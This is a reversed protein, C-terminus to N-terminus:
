ELEALLEKAERHPNGFRPPWTQSLVGDLVERADAALGAAILARGLGLYGDPEKTRVRIVQRWEGVAEDFRQQKERVEALLARGESENASYEALSTYAREAEAPRELKQLRDGLEKFLLFDHTKKRGLSLLRAVAREADGLKDYADILFRQTEPDTRGAPGGEVAVELHRAAKMFERKETYIQGLAKRATVNELGTEASEKDLHAAYADLDKAERLVQLLGAMASQRNRQHSGWSVIAGAAADVAEPTRGLGSFARALFGYYSSLTGDGVGRNRSRKTHLSIAENLYGTAPEFLKVEVCVQGLGAAHRESWTGTEHFLGDASTLAALLKESQSTHYYARLLAQHYATKQPWTEVLALLLPISEGFRKRKHLYDVLQWKGDQGLGSKREYAVLADIAEDHEELGRFLYRAIHQVGKESSRSEELVELAVARFDSAHEAWFHGQRRSYLYRNRRTQDTLDRRLEALVIALVRPELDGVAGKMKKVRRALRYAHQNWFNNGQRELWRPENEARTVLFALAERSGVIKGLAEEVTSVTSQGNRYNYMQLIRPLVQFAFGRLKDSAAAIKKSHAAELLVVLRQVLRQAHNEHSRRELDEIILLRAPEFLEVGRGLSTTADRQLARAYFDYLQIALWRRQQLNHPLALERTWLEEAAAFERYEMLYRTYTQLVGNASQPLLGEQAERHEDLAASLVEITEEGRGYSWLASARSAAIAFREESGRTAGDHLERLQRLQEERLPDVLNSVSELLQAMLAAEGDSWEGANARFATKLAELAAAMHPGAGDAQDAARREVLFELLRLARRDSPSVDGALLGRLHSQLRDATAEDGILEFTPQLGQLYPYIKKASQGVVGDPLAELIRYDKTAEYYERLIWLHNQPQTSKRLLAAFRLLVEEDLEDPIGEGHRQYRRLKTQLPQAIRWEDEVQYAEIRAERNRKRDDLALYWGALARYEAPGLEDTSEVGGFVKVAEELKGREALLYGYPVRWRNRAIESAESAWVQLTTELKDGRDLAVLLWYKHLRADVRAQTEEDHRKAILEDILSLLANALAPDAEEQTALYGLTLLCRETLVSWKMDLVDSATRAPINRFLSRLEDAVRSADRQKPGRSTARAELTLREIKIFPSVEASLPTGQGGSELQVLVQIVAAEAKRKLADELPRLKRRSLENRGPIGGAEKKARAKVLYRVLRTVADAQAATKTNGRGTGRPGLQGLLGLLEAQAAESWPQGLLAHFLNTAAQAKQKENGARALEARRLRVVLEPDGHSQIVQALQGLSQPDKEQEWRTFVARLIEAQAPEGKEPRYLATWGFFNGVAAAALSEIEEALARYLEAVLAIGEESRLFRYDRLIRNPIDSRKEDRAHARALDVLVPKWQADIRDTYLDQGQSLAHGLAAQFRAEAITEAREAPTPQSSDHGKSPENALWERIRADAEAERDLMVLASLYQNFVTSSVAAPKAAIWADVYALFEVLRRAQYLLYAAHSHLSDKEPDTWPGNQRLVEELRAVARDVEGRGALANAFNIQLQLDDPYTTTLAERLRFAEETRSLRDLASLRHAEWAKLPFLREDRREYIPKLAEILELFEGAELIGRGDRLLLSALAFDGNAAEQVRWKALHLTHMRVEENRRSAKLVELRICDLGQKGEFPAEMAIFHEKVQKWRQTMAFHNMLVWREAFRAEGDRARQKSEVLQPLPQALLIAVSVPALARDMTAAFAEGSLEEHSLKATSRIKGDGDTVELKGPWFSRAVRTFESFTQAGTKKGEFLSSVELIVSRELDLLIEVEYRPDNKSVLKLTAREGERLLVESISPTYTGYQAELNSFYFAYPAPYSRADGDEADRTSGLLRALDLAGRTGDRLWRLYPIAHTAPLSTAAWASKSLIHSSSGRPRSRGRSDFDEWGVTIALASPIARTSTTERRDLRKLVQRIEDPWRPSSYRPEGQPPSLAPFLSSFPSSPTHIFPTGLSTDLDFYARSEAYLANSKRRSRSREGAWGLQHGEELRSTPATAPMEENLDEFDLSEEEKMDGFDAESEDESEDLYFNVETQDFREAQEDDGAFSGKSRNRASKSKSTDASLMSRSAGGGVGALRQWSRTQRMESLDMGMGRYIELVNAQLGLRWRKALLMQQRALEFQARDRGETFFEEGGRMRFRKKVGFRERDADSELVLLSTYPTIIQYDESLTIIRQKVKPDPGQELLHDLHTRAWLRPIFSNGEGERSFGVPVEATVTQGDITGRLRLTGGTSEKEPLYRGLIIQQRGAPLNPLEGPYVRAVRVGAWELELDRVASSTLERLLDSAVESADKGGGVRHLSGAGLGAIARLVMLDHTSGLAVAHFHGEGRYLKKLRAILAVPDADGRSVIGDGVHIVVTDKNCRALVEGFALDLETWGLAGRRELFALAKASNEATAPVAEPFAWEATVDFALLRFRDKEGLTELLSAIFLRQESLQVETMSGSTDAMLIIDLPETSDASNANDKESATGTLGEPSLLVMFYGDDGRRHSIVTSKSVPGTEVVVEFDRSPTYEEAAFEVHGSHEGQRIRAMHSPCIVKALSEESAIKVDIKLERLPTQELLESRLAYGYRYLNGEKPLVQTYTIRIRKESHPTIPYVRAKFINGGTWELLGPDRKESLITEYIARAREKEVIDAEVLEKGIWMGFGSISAEQPLPFYFVGELVSGTHNVFSEEIQTRAIQDRIDVTVKHYGLTLPVDRGDVNALLSGMAETSEKAKFGRLWAPDTELTSLRKDRARLVSRSEVALTADGPGVVNIKTGVKPRAELEGSYLRASAATVIELLGGPGLVLRSGDALHLEAANAGRAGTKIWDGAVLRTGENALAWREAGVAKVFVAGERDAVKGPSLDQAQGLSAGCLTVLLLLPHGGQRRFVASIETQM